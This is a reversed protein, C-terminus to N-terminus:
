ANGMADKSCQEATTEIVHVNHNAFVRKCRKFYKSKETRLKEDKIKECPNYFYVEVSSGPGGLLSASVTVDGLFEGDLYDTVYVMTISQSEKVLSTLKGVRYNDDCVPATALMRLVNELEEPTSCPYMQVGGEGRSDYWVPVCSNGETLTRTAVALALEVVGDVGHENIDEAYASNESPDFHAALDCFLYVMRGTNMDYQKVQLEESKSSLKWHVNKMPDGPEYLRIDSIDNRDIGMASRRIDTSTDSTSRNIDALMTFRRPMVYISRYNYLRVKFRFLKFPDYIYICDIGVDYTGRYAFVVQSEIKYDSNPPAAIKIRKLSCRLANKDPLRLDAEAFPVPFPSHNVVQITFKAPTNKTVTIEDIDVYADVSAFVIIAYILNLIPWIILFVLLVASLPSHLAQTFIVGLALLFLYALAGSGFGFFLKEKPEGLRQKSSSYGFSGKQKKNMKALLKDSKDMARRARFKITHLIKRINM